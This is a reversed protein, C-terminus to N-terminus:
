ARAAPTVDAPAHLARRAQAHHRRVHAALVIAWELPTYRLPAFPSAVCVRDLDADAIAEIADALAAHTRRFRDWADPPAAAPTFGQRTRARPGRGSALYGAFWGVWRRPRRGRVRRGPAAPAEALLRLAAEATLSLHELCEDASWADPAPRRGWAELAHTTRLTGFAAVADRLAAAAGARADDAAAAASM